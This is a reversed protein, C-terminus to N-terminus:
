FKHAGHTGILFELQFHVAQQASEFEEAKDYDYQLRVKSFESPYFTVAPSIRHRLTTIAPGETTTVPALIPSVRDYRLGVHWREMPADFRYALQAYWGWDLVTDGSAGPAGDYSRWLAEAQLSVFSLSEPRRYKLYLDGGYIRTRTTQGADNPGNLYSGGLNLSLEESLAFFNGLRVLGLLDVASRQTSPTEPTSTAVDEEIGPRFSVATEGTSNQASLTLESFWPLPVLWSLQAGTNRLGDGGFFNGLVLPKSAFDWSHPHVANQRGFATFFQGAKLQLDFPLALSTGYAEEIEVGGPIFVINADGRFYPDVVAGASLEVQQLTFGNVRPDHGDGFVLPDPRNFQSFSFLPILSLDPNMGRVAAAPAAPPLQEAFAPPLVSAFLVTSIFGAPIPFRM